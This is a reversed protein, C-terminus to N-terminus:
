EGGSDNAQLCGGCKRQYERVKPVFEACSVKKSKFGFDYTDCNVSAIVAIVKGSRKDNFTVRRFGGCVLELGKHEPFEGCVTALKLESSWGDKVLMIKPTSSCGLMLGFFIFGILRALDSVLAGM